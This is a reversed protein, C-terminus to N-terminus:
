IVTVVPAACGTWTIKAYTKVSGDAIVLKLEGSDFPSASTKACSSDYALPTTTSVTFSDTASGTSAPTWGITGNVEVTGSPLPEGVVLSAGNAPTFSFALGNNLTGVGAGAKQFVTTIDNSENLIQSTATLQRTGNRTESSTVGSSTFAFELNTAQSSFNFMTPDPRMLELSGTVALSNLGLIGTFECAPLAYTITEDTVQGQSNTANVVITGCGNPGATDVMPRQRTTASRLDAFAGGTSGSAMTMSSVSASVESSTSTSAGTFDPTPGSSSGNSSSCGALVTLISCALISCAAVAKASAKNHTFHLM